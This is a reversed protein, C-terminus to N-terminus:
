DGSEYKKNIYQILEESKDMVPENYLVTGMGNAGIILRYKKEKGFQDILPNLRKWVQENINKNSIEYANQTEEQMQRYRFIIEDAKESEIDKDMKEISAKFSDLRSNLENLKVEVKSELNKKMEFENVVKLVDIVVINNVKSNTYISFIINSAILLLLISIGIILQRSM